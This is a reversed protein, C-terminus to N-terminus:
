STHQKNDQKRIEEKHIYFLIEIKKNRELQIKDIKFGIYIFFSCFLILLTIAIFNKLM